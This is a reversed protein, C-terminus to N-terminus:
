SYIFSVECNPFLKFKHFVYSKFHYMIAITSLIVCSVLLVTQNIYGRIIDQTIMCLHSTCNELSYKKNNWNLDIYAVRYSWVKTHVKIVFIPSSIKHWVNNQWEFLIKTKAKFSESSKNEDLTQRVFRKEIEIM